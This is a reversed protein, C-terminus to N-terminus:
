NNSFYVTNWSDALSGALYGGLYFVAGYIATEFLYAGFPIDVIEGTEPNKGKGGAALYLGLSLGICSGSCAKAYKGGKGTKAQIQQIDSLKFTQLNGSIMIRSQSETIELAKGEIVIGSKLYIKGIPYSQLVTQGVSLSSLFLLLVCASIFFRNM